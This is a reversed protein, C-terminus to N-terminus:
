VRQEWQAYSYLAGLIAAKVPKVPTYLSKGIWLPVDYMDTMHLRLYNAAARLVAPDVREVTQDWILLAELCYATEESTSQTYYGWGGDDNQTRIIWKYRSRALQDDLGHLASLALSNVYYPSSHWKDWWFTGNEDSQRLLRLVKGVWREYDPHDECLRLAALLRVHASVSPNTEGHFCWFHDDTEYFNFVSPDVPYGGWRLVTFCASTGDLDRIPFYTSYGAGEEPSWYDWLYDLVQKVEPYHPRIVSAKQLHILSWANEFAEIPAVDPAAGGERIVLDQLYNLAPQHEFNLLYAATAAPSSGVSDNAELLDDHAHAEDRLAEFSFLLTTGRWHRVPQQLFSQVKHKFAQFYRLPPHPVDLGLKAADEALGAALIPFGITDSDDRGLGGVLRWLADEGRKIRREDRGGQNLERLAVVSALTSIFRDHYHLQPAGWTGDEYQHRRLWEAALDFNAHPYRPQLRAVWATDYAVGLVQGLNFNSGLARIEQELVQLEEDTFSTLDPNDTQAKWLQYAPFM